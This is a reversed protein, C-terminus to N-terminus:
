VIYWTRYIYYLYLIYFIGSSCIVLNAREREGIMQM